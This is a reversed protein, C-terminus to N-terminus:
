CNGDQGRDASFSDDVLAPDGLFSFVKAVWAVRETPMLSQCYM